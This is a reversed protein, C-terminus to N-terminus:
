IEKKKLRERITNVEIIIVMVQVVLLNLQGAFLKVREFKSLMDNKASKCMEDGSNFIITQIKM